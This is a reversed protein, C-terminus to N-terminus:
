FSTPLVNVKLRGMPTSLMSGTVSGAGSGAPVAGATLGLRVASQVLQTVRRVGMKSMVRGRHAKVTKESIGLEHAIQKNLRGSLVLELVEVERRTLSEYRRSLEETQQLRTRSKVAEELARDISQLLADDAVPKALFDIAGSKMAMVSTPIDGFGTLMIVPLFAGSRRIRQLVEFGDLDPLRVDLVLCGPRASAASEFFETATGFTRVVHGASAILRSLAIRVASDDDVVFVETGASVMFREQVGLPVTAIGHQQLMLNM